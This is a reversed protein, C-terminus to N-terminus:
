ARRRPVAQRRVDSMKFDQSKLKSHFDRPVVLGLPRDAMRPAQQARALTRRFPGQRVCDPADLIPPAPPGARSRRGM